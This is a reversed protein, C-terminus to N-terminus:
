EARFYDVPVQRLFDGNGLRVTVHTVQNLFGTHLKTAIGKTGAKIIKYTFFGADYDRTFVIAGNLTVLVKAM